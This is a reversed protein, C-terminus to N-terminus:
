GEVGPVGSYGHTTGRRRVRLVPLRSVGALLVPSAESDPLPRSTRVPRQHPPSSSGPCVCPTSSSSGPCVGLVKWVPGLPCGDGSHTHPGSLVVTPRSLVLPLPDGGFELLVRRLPQPRPLCLHRRVTFAGSETTVSWRRGLRVTPRAGHRYEIVWSTPCWDELRRLFIGQM